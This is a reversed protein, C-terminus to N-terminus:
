QPAEPRGFIDEILFQTRPPILEAPYYRLVLDMVQNASQMGLRRILLRIDMEDGREEPGAPLRAALCKMALLYEPTPATLGSPLTGASMRSSPLASISEGTM